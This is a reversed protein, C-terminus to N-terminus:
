KEMKNISRGRYEAPKTELDIKQARTVSRSLLTVHSILHARSNSGAGQRRWLEFLRTPGARAAADQLGEGEARSPYGHKIRIYYRHGGDTGQSLAVRKKGEM